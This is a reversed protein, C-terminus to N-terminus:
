LMEFNFHNGIITNFMTLRDDLFSEWGNINYTYNFMMKGGNGHELNFVDHGLEHYVVYWRKYNSFNSWQSPSIVLEVNDNNNMGIAVAVVSNPLEKFSVNVFSSMNSLDPLKSFLPKKVEYVFGENKMEDLFRNLYIGFDTYFIRVMSMLDYTDEEMFDFIKKGSDNLIISDNLYSPPDFIMSNTITFGYSYNSIKTKEFSSIYTIGNEIKQASGSSENKNKIEYGYELNREWFEVDINVYRKSKIYGAITNDLEDPYFIVMLRERNNNFGQYISKGQSDTNSTIGNSFGNSILHNRVNKINLNKLNENQGYLSFSFFLVMILNFFRKM